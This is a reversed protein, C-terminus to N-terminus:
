HQLAQNLQTNFQNPDIQSTENDITTGQQQVNSLYSNKIHPYTDTPQKRYLTINSNNLTTNELTLSEYATIHSNHMLTTGTGKSAEYLEELQTEKLGINPRLTINNKLTPNYFTITTDPTIPYPTINNQSILLAHDGNNIFSNPEAECVNIKLDRHGNESATLYIGKPLTVNDKQPLQPREPLKELMNGSITQKGTFPKQADFPLSHTIPEKFVGNQIVLETPENKQTTHIHVDKVMASSITVTDIGRLSTNSIDPSNKITANEILVNEMNIIPTQNFEATKVNNLQANKFTSPIADQGITMHCNNLSVNKIKDFVGIELQSNVLHINNTEFQKALQYLDERISKSDNNEGARITLTSYALPNDPTAQSKTLVLQNNELPPYTGDQRPGLLRKLQLHNLNENDTLIM